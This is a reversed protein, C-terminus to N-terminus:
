IIFYKRPSLPSIDYKYPSFVLALTKVRSNFILHCIKSIREDYEVVMITIIMQFECYYVLYLLEEV